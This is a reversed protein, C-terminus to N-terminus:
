GEPQPGDEPGEGGATNDVEFPQDDLAEFAHCAAVLALVAAAFEPTFRASMGSTGYVGVIKCIKRTLYYITSFGNVTRAM